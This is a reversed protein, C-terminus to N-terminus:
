KEPQAAGEAAEHLIQRIPLERLMQRLEPDELAERVKPHSLLRALRGRKWEEVIKGDRVVAQVKTHDLFQRFEPKDEIGELAKPNQALATLDAMLPRLELYASPSTPRVVYVTYFSGELQDHLRPWSRARQDEPIADFIALVFWCLVLAEFAGFVFGLKRNWPHPKGGEGSGLSRAIVGLAIRALIYLVIWALMACIAYAWPASLGWREVAFGAARGGVFGAALCAIVLSLISALKSLVGRWYSAVGFLLALLVVVVDIVM